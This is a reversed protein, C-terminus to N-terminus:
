EKDGMPCLSTGMRHGCPRKADRCVPCKVQGGGQPCGSRLPLLARPPCGALTEVRVTAWGVRLRGGDLVKKASALPCQVWMTGLGNAEARIAGTRVDEPGCGGSSKIAIVVDEATVADDLDRVRLVVTKAPLAIRVEKEGAFLTRM